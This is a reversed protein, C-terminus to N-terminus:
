VPDIQVDASRDALVSSGCLREALARAWMELQADTLDQRVAEIDLRGSVITVRSRPDFLAARALALERAWEEDVQPALKMRVVIRRANGKESATMSAVDRLDDPRGAALKMSVMDDRGAVRVPQGGLSRTIARQKIKPYPASGDPRYLVDLRGFRTNFMLTPYQAESGHHLGGGLPPIRAADLKTLARELARRNAEDDIPVMVDVDGTGRVEGHVAVALAGIVVFDVGSESLSALLATPNLPGVTV